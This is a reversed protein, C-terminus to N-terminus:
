CHSAVDLAAAAGGLPWHRRRVSRSFRGAAGILPHLCPGRARAHALVLSGLGRRRAGVGRQQGLELLSAGISSIPLRYARRPLADPCVPGMWLRWLDGGVGAGRLRHHRRESWCGRSSTPRTPGSRNLESQPQAAAPMFAPCSAVAAFQFRRSSRCPRSASAAARFVLAGSPSRPWFGLRRCPQLRLGSAAGAALTRCPRSAASRFCGSARMTPGATQRRSAFLRARCPRAPRSDVAARGGRLRPRSRSRETIALALM